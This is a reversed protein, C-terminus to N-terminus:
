IKFYNLKTTDNTLPNKTAFLTQAEKLINSDIIPDDSITEYSVTRTTLPIFKTFTFVAPVTKKLFLSLQTNIKIGTANDVGSVNSILTKIDVLNSQTLLNSLIEKFVDNNIVPNTYDITEDLQSYLIPTNSKIYDICNSYEYFLNESTFNSDFMVQTGTTGSLQVDMGYKVVFNLKDLTSILSNRKNEFDDTNKDNNLGDITKEIFDNLYSSLSQNVINIKNKPLYKDIGFMNSLSPYFLLTTIMSSKLGSIYHSRDKLLTYSGFLSINNTSTGSTVNIDYTNIPRYKQSIFLDTIKPGYSKLLNNYMTTYSTFYNQTNTSIDGILNTYDIFGPNIVSNGIFTGDVKISNNPNTSNIIPQSNKQLSELFNKTFGSTSLNGMTSNTTQSREDYMETNAYFNSSLANQLREVPAELGQGGIFSIQMTVNAIMPQIGIGEPNLDWPSEDYTINVNRIIVKSNYFDGFRLVCIPPPGFTTNRAGLDKDDVLGAIPITDGPRLCQQLFTLRANLGEPTTSHFAPHFYRLKERLSKFAMPSSEEMKKFYYSESLTKMIIRKMVDIPPKKSKNQLITTGDPVISTKPTTNSTPTNNVSTTNSQQNDIRQYSFNVSSYRCGFAVPAIMKLDSNFFNSTHCDGVPGPVLEGNNTTNITLTGKIGPYGLQAYTLTVTYKLTSDSNGSPPNWPINVSVASLQRVIDKVVSHSRRISLYYNYSTEALASTSSSINITVDGVNGKSIDTKLQSLKTNYDAYGSNLKDFQTQLNDITQNVLSSVTSSPYPNKNGYLVFLDSQNNATVGTIITPLLNALAQKKVGQWTLSIRSYEGSYDDSSTFNNNSKSPSNNEFNLNVTSLTITQTTPNITSPQPQVVDDIVTKYNQIVTQNGGENLYQNILEVDNPSLTTYNRILSYFDIDQCGAFFANIYNDAVEDSMGKFHDRVLLNLISPHDVVIKFSLQGEREANQYTYVPEPRGLFSNSEWKAQSQESVKIDYPPFWMVRGGNPGRESYPLDQVTFGQSNSSKWALNEISFMYKKAYFSNGDKDPGFKYGNFINTSGNFGKNGDSMPAINLNWPTSFVSANNKRVNTRRYPTSTTDYYKSQTDGTTPFLDALHSYPRDKTWVRCYEMGTEEGYKNVYQVASGRSLLIDGEKFIRSTQDIVNAVHSRSESGNNPLTNLIDQTYALISGDKFGYNISLTDMIQSKEDNFLSNTGLKNKSSVSYWTLNTSNLGGEGVNKDRQFLVAQVSDFMLSLHFPSKVPRDNFDNMAFKVDEGRDDGIYSVGAPAEVGLFNKVGQAANDIFTFVKSTNQSRATTTYNPAYTSYSLLDFLIQKSGSGMYDIFLDSPKRTVSERRPIGILSGLAGTVDQNLKGIESTATPKYNVPNSPKTLYDGPITTFPLEVGAVTQLFNVAIGPLTNSVTIKDDPEILPSKGTVINSAMATNGNLADLLNLRGTTATAINRNIRSLIPGDPNNQMNSAAFKFLESETDYSTTNMIGVLNYDGAVFYPYLSLNARRPLVNMSDTVSFTLPKYTNSNQTQLLEGSVTDDVTGPNVNSFNSVNQFDYSTSTFTQPGNPVNLTKGLIYDRFSKTSNFDLYSPM